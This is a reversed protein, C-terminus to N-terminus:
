YKVAGGLACDSGWPGMEEVRPRHIACNQASSPLPFSFSPPGWVWGCRSLVLRPQLPTCPPWGRLLSASNGPFNVRSRCRGSNMLTPTLRVGPASGAVSNRPWLPCSDPLHCILFSTNCSPFHCQRLSSRAAPGSSSRSIKSLHRACLQSPFQGSLLWDGWRQTRVWAIHVTPSDTKGLPHQSSPPSSM